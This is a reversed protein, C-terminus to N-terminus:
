YKVSRAASLFVVGDAGANELLGICRKATAGSTLIDDVLLIKRGRIDNEAGLALHLRGEANHERSGYDLGKQERASGSCILYRRHRLGTLRSIRKSLLKAQDCGNERIRKPSRPVYTVTYGDGLQHESMASVMKRALDDIIDRHGGRKLRLLMAKSPGDHRYPICYIFREEDLHRVGCTCYIHERGCSLCGRREETELESLCTPCLYGGGTFEGCSLCRRPYCLDRLRSFFSQRKM